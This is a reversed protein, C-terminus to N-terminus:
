EIASFRIPDLTLTIDEGSFVYNLTGVVFQSGIEVRFQGFYSGAALTKGPVKDFVYLQTALNKATVPEKGWMSELNEHCLGEETFVKPTYERRQEICWVLAKVIQDFHGQHVSSAANASSLIGFSVIVAILHQRM